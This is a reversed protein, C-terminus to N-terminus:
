IIPTSRKPAFSCGLGLYIYLYNIGPIHKSTYSFVFFCTHSPLNRQFEDESATRSVEIARVEETSCHAYLKKFAEHLFRLGRILFGVGSAAPQRAPPPRRVSSSGLVLAYWKPGLYLTWQFMLIFIFPDKNKCWLRYRTGLIVLIYRFM